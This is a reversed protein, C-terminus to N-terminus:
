SIRGAPSYRSREIFDCRCASNAYNDIFGRNRDVAGFSALLVHYRHAMEIVMDLYFGPTVCVPCGPGSLMTINSPLLSPLGMRHIAMTHTGCVEMIRVKTSLELNKLRETLDRALNPDRLQKLINKEM